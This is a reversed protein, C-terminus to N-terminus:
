YDFKLEKLGYSRIKGNTEVLLNGTGDIGRIIGNMKEGAPNEVILSEDKKWLQNQYETIIDNWNGAILPKRTM